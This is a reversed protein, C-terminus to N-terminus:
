YSRLVFWVRWKSREVTKYPSLVRARLLWQETDSARLMFVDLDKVDLGAVDNVRDRPVPARHM